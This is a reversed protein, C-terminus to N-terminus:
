ILIGVLPRHSMLRRCVSRNTRRLKLSRIVLRWAATLKGCWSGFSLPRSATYKEALAYQKNTINQGYRDMLEPKRRLNNGNFDWQQKDTNDLTAAPHRVMCILKLCYNEVLWLAALSIFPDKLCM